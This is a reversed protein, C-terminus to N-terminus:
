HVKSVAATLLKALKPKAEALTTKDSFMTVTVLRNGKRSTMVFDGNGDKTFAAEDGIKEVAEAKKNQIEKKMMASWGSPSKLIETHVDFPAGLYGCTGDQPPMSQAKLIEPKGLIQAAEAKTILTCPDVDQASLRSDIASLSSMAAALMVAQLSSRM